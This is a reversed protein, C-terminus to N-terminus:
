TDRKYILYLYEPICAILRGFVSRVLLTMFRRWPQLVLLVVVADLSVM